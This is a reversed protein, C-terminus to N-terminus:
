RSIVDIYYQELRCAEKKINYGCKTIKSKQSKRTINNSIELKNVWENISTDEIDIFDILDTVKADQPVETSAICYLGTAQAEILVMGLGEYLSPLIFKDFALYLEDVDNRQGLFKVSDTLNLKSVINKIEELMPGQGVLLLVSNQNKKHYENFVKLVYKHNKQDVFRGIHGVVTTNDDLGLSKRKTKRANADYKFKDLNIANNLIYFDSNGFLWRGAHSTCAFYNTAFIKALPKLILKISNKLWEKRNTTSHNHAIRVKVKACKAAFLPFVSLTNIHSHVIMYNNDKLIKKLKRHYSFIKQYPPILIVRGGLAEIEEYPINLSDSDCIFDFQIKDHNINKYYNMVVAEVGGGVWKGIIHAVRIPKSM